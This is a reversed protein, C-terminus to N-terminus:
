EREVGSLRGVSSSPERARAACRELGVGTGELLHQRSWMESTQWDRSQRVIAKTARIALPGNQAIRDALELARGLARWGSGGRQHPGDGGRSGRRRSGGTLLMEMALALPVRRPLPM